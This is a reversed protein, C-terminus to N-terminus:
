SLQMCDSRGSREGSTRCLRHLYQKHSQYPCGPLNSPIESSLWHSFVPLDYRQCCYATPREASQRRVPSIRGRGSAPSGTKCAPASTRRWSNVISEQYQPYFSSSEAEKGSNLIRLKNMLLIILVGLFLGVVVLLISFGINDM